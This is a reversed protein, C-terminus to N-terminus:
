QEELSKRKSCLGGHVCVIGLHIRVTRNRHQLDAVSMRGRDDVSFGAMTESWRVGDGTHGRYRAAVVVSSVIQKPLLRGLALPILRLAHQWICLAM